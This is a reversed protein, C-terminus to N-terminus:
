LRYLPSLSYDRPGFAWKLDHRDVVYFIKEIFFIYILKLKWDSFVLFNLKSISFLLLIGFLQLPGFLVCASFYIINKSILSFLLQLVIEILCLLGNLFFILNLTLGFNLSKLSAKFGKPLEEDCEIIEMEARHQAEVSCCLFVM